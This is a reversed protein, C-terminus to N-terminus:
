FSVHTQLHSHTDRDWPQHERQPDYSAKLPQKKALVTGVTNRKRPSATRPMVTPSPTRHPAELSLHPPPCAASVWMQEPEGKWHQGALSHGQPVRCTSPLQGGSSVGVRRSSWGMWYIDDDQVAPWGWPVQLPLFLDKWTCLPLTNWKM